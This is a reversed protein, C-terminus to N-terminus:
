EFCLVRGLRDNQIHCSEMMSPLLFSTLGVSSFLVLSFNLPALPCPPALRKKGEKFHFRFSPLTFSPLIVPSLSGSSLPLPATGLSSAGFAPEPISQM